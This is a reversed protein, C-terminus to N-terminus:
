IRGGKLKSRLGDMDWYSTNTAGDKLGLLGSQYLSIFLVESSLAVAKLKNQSHTYVYRGIWSPVLFSATLAAVTTRGTWLAWVLVGSLAVRLVTLRTYPSSLFTGLICLPVGILLLYNKQYFALVILALALLFPLFGIAANTFAYQQGYAREAVTLALGYDIGLALDGANVRERIEELTKCPFAPIDGVRSWKLRPEVNREWEEVYTMEAKFEKSVTSITPTCLTSTEAMQSSMTKATRDPRGM